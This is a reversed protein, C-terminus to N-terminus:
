REEQAVHSELDPLARDFASLEDQGDVALPGFCFECVHFPSAPYGRGCERYTLGQRKEM